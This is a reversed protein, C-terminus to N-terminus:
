ESSVSSAAIASPAPTGQNEIGNVCVRKPLSQFFESDSLFYNDYVEMIGLNPLSALDRPLDHLRNNSVDLRLLSKLGILSNPLSKLRNNSVLLAKLNPLNGLSDPLSDLRNSELDIRTLNQLGGLTEPLEELRNHHVMIWTLNQLDGLSNPLEIFISKVLAQGSAKSVSQHSQNLSCPGWSSGSTAAVPM